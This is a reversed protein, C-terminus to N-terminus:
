FSTIASAMVYIIKYTILGLWLLQFIMGVLVIWVKPKKGAKGKLRGYILILISPLLTFIGYLLFVLVSTLFEMLGSLM